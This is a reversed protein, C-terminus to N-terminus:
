VVGADLTWSLHLNEFCEVATLFPGLFNELGGNSLGSRPSEMRLFFKARRYKIKFVSRETFMPALMNSKLHFFHTTSFRITTKLNPRQFTQIMYFSEVIQFMNFYDFSSFIFSDSHQFFTANSSKNFHFSQRGDYIANIKGVFPSKSLKWMKFNQFVNCKTLTKWAM